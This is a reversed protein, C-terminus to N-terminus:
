QIDIFSSLERLEKVQQEQIKLTNDIIPLKTNVYYQLSDIRENVIIIKNDIRKRLVFFDVFIYSMIFLILISVLISSSIPKKSHNSKYLKEKDEKKPKKAVNTEKLKTEM